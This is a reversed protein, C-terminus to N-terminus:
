MIYRTKKFPQGRVLNKLYKKGSGEESKIIWRMYQWVNTQKYKYNIQQDRSSFYIFSFSFSEPGQKMFSLLNCYTNYAVFIMVNSQSIPFKDYFNLM